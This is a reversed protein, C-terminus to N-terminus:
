DDLVPLNDYEVTGLGDIEIQLHKDYGKDFHDCRECINDGNDESINITLVDFHDFSERGMAIAEQLDYSGYDWDEYQAIGNEDTEQVCFWKM